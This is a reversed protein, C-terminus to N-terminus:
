GQVLFLKWHLGRQSSIQGRGWGCCFSHPVGKCNDFPSTSPPAALSTWTCPPQLGGCGLRLLRPLWDPVDRWECEWEPEWTYTSTAITSNGNCGMPYWIGMRCSTSRLITCDRNWGVVHWRWVRRTSVTSDRNGSHSHCVGMRRRTIISDGNWSVIRWRGMGSTAITPRWEMGLPLPANGNQHFWEQM